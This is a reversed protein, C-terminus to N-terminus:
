QKSSHRKNYTPPPRTPKDDDIRGEEVVAVGVAQSSDFEGEAQDAPLKEKEGSAKTVNFAPAVVRMFVMQGIAQGQFIKVQTSNLNRVNLVVEESIFITM